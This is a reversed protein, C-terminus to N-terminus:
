PRSVISLPRCLLEVENVHEPWGRELRGGGFTRAPVDVEESPRTDVYHPTSNPLDVAGWETGELKLDGLAVIEGEGVRHEYVTISAIM